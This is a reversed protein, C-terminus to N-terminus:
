INRKQLLPHELFPIRLKVVRSIRKRQLWIFILTKLLWIRWSHSAIGDFSFAQPPELKDM